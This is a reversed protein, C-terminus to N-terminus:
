NERVSNKGGRYSSTQIVASVLGDEFVKAFSAIMDFVLFLCTQGGGFYQLAVHGDYSQGRLELLAGGDRPRQVLLEHLRVAQQAVGHGPSPWGHPPCGVGIVRLYTVRPYAEPVSIEPEWLPTM